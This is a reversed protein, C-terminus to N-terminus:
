TQFLSSFAIRVQDLVKVLKPLLEQSTCVYNAETQNIGYIVGDEGLNTYITVLSFNFKFCGMATMLWQAKTDCYMVLKDKSKMGLIQLGRGISSSKRDVDQYSMWTYKPEMIRKTFLKGNGGPVQREEIIRRTGLCNKKGHKEVSYKLIQDMTRVNQDLLRQRVRSQTNALARFTVQDKLIEVRQARKRRYGRTKQWPRYILFYIPLTLITWLYVLGQVVFLLVAM